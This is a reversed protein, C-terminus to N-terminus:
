IDIHSFKNETLYEHGSISNINYQAHVSMTAVFTASFPTACGFHGRRLLFVPASFEFIADPKLGSTTIHGFSRMRVSFDDNSTNSSLCRRVTFSEVDYLVDIDSFGNGIVSKRGSTSNICKSRM